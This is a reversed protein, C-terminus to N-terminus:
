YRYHGGWVAGMGGTTDVAMADSWSEGTWIDGSQTVQDNDFTSCYGVRKGGWIASSGGLPATLTVSMDVGGLSGKNPGWVVAATWAPGWVLAPDQVYLSGDSAAGVFLSPATSAVGTAHLAADIDLFGAGTEFISRADKVSSAMLRAKVTAPLLTPDKQIMLAAAGAVMPAAMSTGALSFYAGDLNALLPDSRYNGYKLALQHYKVDLYSGPDRLSVVWTGPAVIDPKAVFDVLSPGRSSYPAVVDDGLAVTGSDDMAGVTIATPEDGPSAITGYGSGVGGSNGAAVVVVLGAQTAAKVARCLPDTKYSEYVPHGLSLNLVRLKYAGRNAIAWDIAALVDSTKGIGDAGLARLSVLRAGPAIGRFHRFATPMSSAAANGNLIGAVHTGHGYPDAPGLLSGTFNIQVLGPQLLGRQLDQHAYVGSDVEAIGVGTGDLGPYDRAAVDAEVAPGAIDMLGTISVDLSIREVSPDAALTLIQSAPVTAAYGTLATFTRTVIGLLSKLLNLNTTTPKGYTQVVIPLTQGPAAARVAADLDSSITGARALPGPVLFLWFAALLAAANAGRNRLRRGEPSLPM